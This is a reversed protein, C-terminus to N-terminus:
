ALAVRFADFGEAEVQQAVEPGGTTLNPCLFTARKVYSLSM